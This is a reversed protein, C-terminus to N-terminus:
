RHALSYGTLIQFFYRQMYESPNNSHNAHKSLSCLLFGLGIVTSMKSVQSVPFSIISVFGKIVLQLWLRRGTLRLVWVCHRM